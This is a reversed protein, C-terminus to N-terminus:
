PQQEEGELKAIAAQAIEYANTAPQPYGPQPVGLEHVIDRLARKAEALLAQLREWEEAPVAIQRPQVGDSSDSEYNFM